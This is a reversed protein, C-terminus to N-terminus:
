ETGGSYNPAGKIIEIDHPKGEIQGANTVRIFRAREQLDSIDRAGVYGMGSRLGGLYQFIIESVPGKFPIAGEVGEPVLKEGQPYRDGSGKTMAGLSGMGRYTKFRQGRSIIFDGPAEGTGAFVSGMMVSSAGTALAKTIDGSNRIGGDAIVPKRYEKGARVAEYIATIQPIGVGAVVRTTCISGPGIGVKVADAGSEFLASAGDYTAVNGAIINFDYLEKFSRKIEEVTEMVNKSHGHATGVLLVDCNKRLLREVREFDKIGVNAGIRLQGRKDRNYSGGGEIISQVDKFCYLGELRGKSDILILKSIKQKKMFDYARNTDLNERSTVPNNVMFDRVFMGKDAFQIRDGTVLGVVKRESNVVVLSSFRNEYEALKELVDERTQEGRITIPNDIKANLTYKVRDVAKEQEEICSKWLFGIGGQMAMERAMEYGTVTDMDASILPVKLSINSSLKTELNVESPVVRSEMPVLLVDDFTLAEGREMALELVQKVPM